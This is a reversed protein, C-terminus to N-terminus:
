ADDVYVYLYAPFPEREGASSVMVLSDGIRLESPGDVRVDGTAGFVARLFAVQSAVDGVVMRPTVTHYGPPESPM